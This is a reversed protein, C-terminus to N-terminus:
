RQTRRECKTPSTTPDILTRGEELSKCRHAAESQAMVMFSCRNQRSTGQKMLCRVSDVNNWLRHWFLPHLCSSFTIPKRMSSRSQLICWQTPMPPGHYWFLILPINVAKLCQYDEVHHVVKDSVSSVNLQVIPQVVGSKDPVPSCLIRSALCLKVLGIPITCWWCPFLGPCFSAFSYLAHLHCKTHMYM